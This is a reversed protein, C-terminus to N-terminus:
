DTISSPGRLKRKLRELLTVNLSSPTPGFSRTCKLQVHRLANRLGEYQSGEPVANLAGTAAEHFFPHGNTEAIAETLSLEGLTDFSIGTARKLMASRLAEIEPAGSSKDACPSSEELGILCLALAALGSSNASLEGIAKLTFNLMLIKLSHQCDRSVEEKRAGMSRFVTPILRWLHRHGLCQLLSAFAAIYVHDASAAAPRVYVSSGAAAGFAGHVGEATLRFLYRAWYAEKLAFDFGGVRALLSRPFLIASLLPQPRGESMLPRVSVPENSRQERVEVVVEHQFSKSTRIQTALSHADLIDGPLLFRILKSRASYFGISHAEACNGATPSVIVRVQPFRERWLGARERDKEIAIIEIRDAVTQALCSALTAEASHPDDLVPVVVTAKPKTKKEQPASSTAIGVNRDGVVGVLARLFAAADDVKAGFENSLKPIAGTSLIKAFQPNSRLKPGRCAWNDKDVQGLPAASLMAATLRDALLERMVPQGAHGMGEPALARRREVLMWLFVLLPLPSRNSSLGAGPLDTIAQLLVDSDRGYAGNESHLLQDWEKEFFKGCLYEAVEPWREPIRLLDVINRVCVVVSASNDVLRRENLGDTMRCRYFLRRDLRIVKAGALALRFWYRTDEGRLLDTDFFGCRLFVHRPMTVATVLFPHGSALISDLLNVTPSTDNERFTYAPGHVVFPKVGFLSVETPSCYCLDADPIAAFARVKAEVHEVHLLNDSDLFQVLEGTAALVAANRAASVGANPQRILKIRGSFAALKAATDDSSGDDVVVIEISSYSQELCNQILSDVLWARNYIPAIISVKPGAEHKPEALYLLWRAHYRLKARTVGRVDALSGEIAQLLGNIHADRASITCPQGVLDRPPPLLDGFGDAWDRGLSQALGSLSFSNTNVGNRALARLVDMAEHCHM